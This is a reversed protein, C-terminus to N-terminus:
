LNSFKSLMDRSNKKLNKHEFYFLKNTSSEDLTFGHSKMARKFAYIPKSLDSFHVLITSRTVAFISETKWSVRGDALLEDLRVMFPKYVRKRKTANPLIRAIRSPRQVGNDGRKAVLMFDLVRNSLKLQVSGIRQKKRITVINITMTNKKEITLIHLLYFFRLCM